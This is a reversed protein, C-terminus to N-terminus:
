GEREEVASEFRRALKVSWNRKGLELDSLYPASIKMRRAIERLSVNARERKKRATKGSSVHDIKLTKICKIKLILSNDAM